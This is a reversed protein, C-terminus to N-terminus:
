DLRAVGHRVYTDVNFSLLFSSPFVVMPLDARAGSYRGDQYVGWRMGDNKRTPGGLPWRTDRSKLEFHVLRSPIGHKGRSVTVVSHHWSSPFVVLLLLLLDPCVTM